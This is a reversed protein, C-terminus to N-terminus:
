LYFNQMPANKHFCTYIFFIRVIRIKTNPASLPPRVRMFNGELPSAYLLCDPLSNTAFAPALSFKRDPESLLQTRRCSTTHHLTFLYYFFARSTRTKHKTGFSPTSGEHLQGWRIKLGDRRGNRWKPM